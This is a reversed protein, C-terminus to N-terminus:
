RSKFILIRGNVFFKNLDFIFEFTVVFVHLVKLESYLFSYQVKKLCSVSFSCSVCCHVNSYIKYILSHTSFLFSKHHYSRILEVLKKVRHNVGSMFFAKNGYVMSQVNVATGILDGIKNIERYKIARDNNWSGFVADIAAWLQKKPDQPFDEGTTKKYVALYRQVVLKLDDADLDTDFEVGKETKVSGLAVEFDHHECGSVVDGYMQIFRRYSDWAFRPNGTNKAIGEVAATTLGLNLVTDMMGPMSVAAGSRISVLLPDNADGLKKGMEKELKALNEDVQKLIDDSYTRNNEYYSKCVTTALTFGAPVPIGLNTMECLNAGKGGLLNKMSADGETANKGFYYVLKNENM